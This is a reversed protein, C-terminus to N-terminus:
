KNIILKESVIMLGTAPSAILDRQAKTMGPILIEKTTSKVELISSVNPTTTGTGASGSAPLMDQAHAAATFLLASFMVAIAIVTRNFITKDM